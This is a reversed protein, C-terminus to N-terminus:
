CIISLLLYLSNRIENIIILKSCQKEKRDLEAVLLLYMDADEIMVAEAEIWIMSGEFSDFSELTGIFRGDFGTLVIL